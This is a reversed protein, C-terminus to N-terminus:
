NVRTVGVMYPCRNRAGAISGALKEQKKRRHLLTRLRKSIRDAGRPIEADFGFFDRFNWEQLQSLFRTSRIRFMSSRAPKRGSRPSRSYPSLSVRGGPHLLAVCNWSPGAPFVVVSFRM